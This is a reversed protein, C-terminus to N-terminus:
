DRSVRPSPEGEVRQERGQIALRQAEGRLTTSKARTRRAVARVARARSVARSAVCLSHSVQALERSSVARPQVAM